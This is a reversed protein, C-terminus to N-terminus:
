PRGTVEAYPKREGRPLGIRLLARGLGDSRGLTQVEALRELTQAYHWELPRRRAGTKAERFQRKNSVSGLGCMKVNRHYLHGM